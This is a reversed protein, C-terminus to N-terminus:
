ARRSRSTFLSRLAARLSSWMVAALSTSQLSPLFLRTIKTGTGCSFANWFIWVLNTLSSSFFNLPLCTTKMAWLLIRGLGVLFALLSFCFLGLDAGEQGDVVADQVVEDVWSLNNSLSDLDPTISRTEKLNMQVLGLLGINFVLCVGKSVDVLLQCSLFDSELEWFWGIFPHNKLLVSRHKQTLYLREM